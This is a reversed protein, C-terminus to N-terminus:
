SFVFEKTDLKLKSNDLKKIIREIKRREVFSIETFVLENLDIKLLKSIVILDKLSFPSVGNMLESIYSKSSHGLIQGFEQQTLNLKKLKSKILQKRKQNFSREAEALLEAEDSEEIQSKSIKSSLSWNEAEYSSILERLNLRKKKLSPNEKVLLRLQRDAQLSKELELESEIRGRKLLDDIDFPTVNM